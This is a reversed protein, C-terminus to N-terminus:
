GIKKMTSIRLDLELKLLLKGTREPKLEMSIQRLRRLRLTVKRKL